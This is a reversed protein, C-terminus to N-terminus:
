TGARNWSRTPIRWGPRSLSRPALRRTWRATSLGFASSGRWFTWAGDDSHHIHLYSPGSDIWERIVLTKGVALVPRLGPRAITPELLARSVAM